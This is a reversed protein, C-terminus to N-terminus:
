KEPIELIYYPLLYCPLFTIVCKQGSAITKEQTYTKLNERGRLHKLYVDKVIMGTSFM